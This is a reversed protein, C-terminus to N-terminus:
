GRDSMTIDALRNYADGPTFEPPGTHGTGQVQRHWHEAGWLYAANVREDLEGLHDEAAALRRALKDPDRRRGLAFWVVVAAEAATAAALTARARARM